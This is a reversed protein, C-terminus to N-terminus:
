MYIYITCKKPITIVHQCKANECIIVGRNSKDQVCPFKKM